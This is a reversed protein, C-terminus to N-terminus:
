SQTERYEDLHERWGPLRAGLANLNTAAADLQSIGPSAAALRTLDFYLEVLRELVLRRALAPELSIAMHRALSFPPGATRGPYEPGAPLRMLAEGLPKVVTTMAHLALRSLEHLMTPDTTSNDFTWQLCQLMLEYVADFATATAIARPDTLLNAGPARLARDSRTCPNEIAPRVPEFPLGARAAETVENDFDARLARFIGYHCDARDTPIGEGQHTIQDIAQLASDGDVVRILGPFDVQEKGIQAAPNGIVADKRTAIGARILDYLEGISHFRLTPDGGSGPPPSLDTPREFEIFTELTRSGFPAAALPLGLPYYNSAQPFPPRYYYPTGGCAALLNWAQALHQMEEAAVFYIQGAWLRVKQLQRWTLGGEALDQKLSFAAYLYCCALGHELECAEALLTL